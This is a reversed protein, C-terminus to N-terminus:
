KLMIKKTTAGDTTVVQLLYAGAALASADIAEEKNDKLLVYQSYQVQGLTNRITVTAPGSYGRLVLTFVGTAPNPFVDLGAALEVTKPALPPSPAAQRYASSNYGGQWTNGTILTTGCSPLGIYAGFETGQTVSFDGVLAIFSGAVLESRTTSNTAFSTAASTSSVVSEGAQITIPSTYQGAITVQNPSASAVPKPLRGVVPTSSTTTVALDYDQVYYILPQPKSANSSRLVVKVRLYTKAGRITMISLTRACSFSVFPTQLISPRKAAGAESNGIQTQLVNGANLAATIYSDNQIISCNDDMRPSFTLDNLDAPTGMTTAGKFRSRYSLSSLTDFVESILAAEASVLELGAAQNFVGELDAQSQYSDYLSSIPAPTRNGYPSFADCDLAEGSQDDYSTKNVALPRKLNFLGLANDYYPMTSGDSNHPTGPIQCIVGRLPYNTTISGTLAISGKSVTPTFAPKSASADPWIAGILSGVIGLAGSATSAFSLATSITKGLGSASTPRFTNALTLGLNSTKTNKSGALKVSADQANKLFKTVDDTQVTGLIKKGKTVFEKLAAGTTPSKADQIVKNPGDKDGAIAFGEETNTKFSFDGSLVIKNEVIGYVQFQLASGQYQGDRFYPDFAATFEGVIWGSQSSMKAVYSVIQNSKSQNLYQDPAQMPTAALSGTATVRTNDVHGMTIIAGSNYTGGSNDLRFYTRIVSTYRNYLIFYPVDVVTKGGLDMRLLEWGKDRTYDKENAIRYLVGNQAALWPAGYVRGMSNSGTRVAWTRCYLPDNRDIEWNWDAFNSIMDTPAVDTCVTVQARATGPSFGAGLLLAAYVATIFKKM